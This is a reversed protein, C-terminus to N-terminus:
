TEQHAQFASMGQNWVTDTLGEPCYACCVGLASIDRINGYENDFFLMDEYAVGSNIHLKEFHVRKNRPYIEEYDVLSRLTCTKKDDSNSRTDMSRDIKIDMLNMCTNAWAPETTKSAVGIQVGKFQEHIKLISFVRHVAPFFQVETGHRDKVTGDKTKKFPAGDLEYMEPFWLTFDLDFVILRPIRNWEKVYQKNQKTNNNKPM